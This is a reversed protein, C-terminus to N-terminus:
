CTERLGCTFAPVTERIIAQKYKDLSMSYPKILVKVLMLGDRHRAEISKMFRATGISQIHQFEPLDFAAGTAPPAALSFGQGM